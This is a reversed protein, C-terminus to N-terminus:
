CGYRNLDFQLTVTVFAHVFIVIALCFLEPHAYRVLPLLLACPPTNEPFNQGEIQIHFM